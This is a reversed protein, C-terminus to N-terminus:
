IHRRQLFLNKILKGGSKAESFPALSESKSRKEPVGFILKSIDYDKVPDTLFKREGLRHV